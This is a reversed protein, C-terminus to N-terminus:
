NRYYKKKKTESGLIGIQILLFFLMVLIAGVPKDNVRQLLFYEVLVSFFFLSLKM